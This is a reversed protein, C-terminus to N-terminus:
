EHQAYPLVTTNFNYFNLCSPSFVNPQITYDKHTIYRKQLPDLLRLSFSEQLTKPFKKMLSANRCAEFMVKKQEAALKTKLSHGWFDFSLCFTFPSCSTKGIKKTHNMFDRNCENMFKSARSNPCGGLFWFYNPGLNQQVTTVACFIIVHASLGIM